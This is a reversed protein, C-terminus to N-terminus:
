INPRLAGYEHLYIYIKATAAESMLPPSVQYANYHKIANRVGEVSFMGSLTCARSDVEVAAVHNSTLFDVMAQTSPFSLVVRLVM